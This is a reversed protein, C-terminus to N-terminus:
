SVLAALIEEHTRLTKEDHLVFRVLRVSGLSDSVKVITGIAVEAAERVPYGFVGTAIAPFAISLLGKEEARRLANRYCSSLLVDSPLDKGYVPGLCHVVYPNPLAYGGTIVAEGPKIPALTRCEESLGPGAVRHIAGAVGGGPMLHANAANVVAEVDEQKTIDGRVCEIRLAGLTREM